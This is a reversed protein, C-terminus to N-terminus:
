SEWGWAWMVGIWHIHGRVTCAVNIDRMGLHREEAAPRADKNGFTVAAPTSSPREPSEQDEGEVYSFVMGTRGPEGLRTSGTPTRLLPQRRNPAPCLEATAVLRRNSSPEAEFADRRRWVEETVLACKAITGVRMRQEMAQWRGRVWDRDEQTVAECGGVMMPYIHVGIARSGLPVTAMYRLVRQALEATPLSPLEPVAQHLHLLTAWKYAHATQMAHTGETMPDEPEEIYTPLQWRELSMKLENAQSIVAPSNTLSRCVRRVLNAVRGILPFLTVACGMRPDLRADIPMGFDIGFGRDVNGMIMPPAERPNGSFIFTNDFDNSEDSDVSTLRAIVDMYVWANCLFKLRALEVGRVPSQRHDQIARRVLAQAGKIHSNGTTTHTDWAEAYGLVLATAIATQITFSNDRIGEQIYHISWAKHEGGVVRFHPVDQMSHFATMASIAHYLAPSQQALPWILTRWPNENPGDMISLIGCTLKDYRLTLMERSDDAFYPQPYIYNTHQGFVDLPSRAPSIASMPTNQGTGPMSPLGQILDASNVFENMGDDDVDGNLLNPDIMAGHMNPIQFGEPLNFQVFDQHMPDDMNFPLLMDTVNPSLGLGPTLHSLSGPQLQDHSIALDYELSSIGVDSTLSSLDLPPLNDM